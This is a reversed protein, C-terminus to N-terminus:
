GAKAGVWPPQPPGLGSACTRGIPVGAAEVRAAGAEHVERKWSPAGADIREISRRAESAPERCGAAVAIGLRAEGPRLRGVRHVIAVDGLGWGALAEQAIACGAGLLTAVAGSAASAAESPDEAIPM